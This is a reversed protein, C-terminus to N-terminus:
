WMLSISRETALCSWVMRSRLFFPMKLFLLLVVLVGDKCRDLMGIFAEITAGGVGPRLVHLWADIGVRCYTCPDWCCCRMRRYLEGDLAASVFEVLKPCASVNSAEADAFAGATARAGPLRALKPGFWSSSPMPDSYKAIRRAHGRQM